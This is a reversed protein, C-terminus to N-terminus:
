ISILRLIKYQMIKFCLIKFTNFNGGAMLPQHERDDKVKGFIFTASGKAWTLSLLIAPQGVNM